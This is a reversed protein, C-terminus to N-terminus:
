RLPERLLGFSAAMKAAWAPPDHDRIRRLDSVPERFRRLATSLVSGLSDEPWEQEIKDQALAFETLTRGIDAFLQSRVVALDPRDDGQERAAAVVLPFRSNLLLQVAGMAPLELEAGIELFWPASADLGCDAFDVETVPFQSADGYLRTKKLDRWLISGRRWAVPGETQPTEERLILATSLTVTSGLLRGPIEIAIEPHLTGSTTEITTSYVESEFESSFAV